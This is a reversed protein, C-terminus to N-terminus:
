GNYDYDADADVGQPTATASATGTHGDPAAEGDIEVKKALGAAFPKITFNTEEDPDAYIIVPVKKGM